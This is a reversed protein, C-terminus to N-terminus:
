KGGSMNVITRMYQSDKHRSQEELWDAIMYAPADEAFPATERIWDERTEFRHQDDLYGACSFCFGPTNGSIRRVTVHPTFGYSVGMNKGCRSCDVGSPAFSGLPSGAMGSAIQGSGIAGSGLGGDSPWVTQGSAIAPGYGSMWISGSM